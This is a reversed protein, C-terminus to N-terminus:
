AALNMKWLVNNKATFLACYYKTKYLKQYNLKKYNMLKTKKRNKVFEM